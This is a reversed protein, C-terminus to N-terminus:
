QGFLGLVELLRDGYELQLPAPAAEPVRSAGMVRLLGDRSADQVLPDEESTM